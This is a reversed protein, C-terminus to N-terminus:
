GALGAGGGGAEELANPHSCMVDSPHSPTLAVSDNIGRCGWEHDGGGGGTLTPDEVDFFIGGDCGSATDTAQQEHNAGYAPTICAPTGVAVGPCRSLVGFDNICLYSTNGAGTDDLLQEIQIAGAVKVPSTGIPELEDFGIGFMMNDFSATQSATISNFISPGAIRFLTNANTTFAAPDTFGFPAYGEPTLSAQKPALEFLSTVIGTDARFGDAAVYSVGGIFVVTALVGFVIKKTMKKM